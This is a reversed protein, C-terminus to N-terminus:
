IMMINCQSGRHPLNQIPVMFMIYLAKTEKIKPDCIVLSDNLTLNRGQFDGVCVNKCATISRKNVNRRSLNYFIPYLQNDAWEYNIVIIIKLKKPRLAQSSKYKPKNKGPIIGQVLECGDSFAVKFGKRVYYSLAN